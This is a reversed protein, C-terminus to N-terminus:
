TKNRRPCAAGRREPPLVAKQKVNDPGECNNKVAQRQAYTLKAPPAMADGLRGHWWESASLPCHIQFDYVALTKVCFVCPAACGFSGDCLCRWILLHGGMKRRIWTAM